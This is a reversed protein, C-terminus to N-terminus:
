CAEQAGLSGLGGRCIWIEMSPTLLVATRATTTQNITNECSGQGRAAVCSMMCRRSTKLEAACAASPTPTLLQHCVPELNGVSGAMALPHECHQQEGQPGYKKLDLLLPELYPDM